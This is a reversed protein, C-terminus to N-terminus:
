SLMTDLTFGIRRLTPGKNPNQLKNTERRIECIRRRQENLWDRHEKQFNQRDNMIETIEDKIRKNEDLLEQEASKLPIVLPIERPKSEAPKTLSMIPFEEGKPESSPKILPTIPPEASKPETIQEDKPKPQLAPKEAPKAGRLGLGGLKMGGLGSKLPSPATEKVAAPPPSSSTASTTDKPTDKPPQGTLKTRGLRGLGGLSM